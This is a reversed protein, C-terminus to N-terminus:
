ILLNDYLIDLSLDGCVTDSCALTMAAASAGLRVAEDLPINNLLGFVVAATLADGAGSPDVIDTAMAPIHGSARATAYVVGAEALTIIVIKVGANVLTRAAAIAGSEDKITKGSLIEAELVNPIIMFLDPLYAKLRSALLNSTPDACLRVGYRQAVKVLAAITAEPLNADFVVMAANKILSRRRNIIQPTILALIEMDDVSMVLNGREDLLAIYAATHYETSIILYDTNIGVEGANALIRQGSGGAGIASLLVAEIGLRALNEAINRAVGGVSVRITGPTSSGLTLPANAKGKSDIGAAGVVLVYPQTPEAM